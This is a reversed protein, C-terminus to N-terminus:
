RPPLARAGPTLSPLCWARVTRRSSSGATRTQAGRQREDEQREDGLQHHDIPAGRGWEGLAQRRDQGGASSSARVIGSMWSRMAAPCSDDVPSVSDYRARMRSTSSSNCATM